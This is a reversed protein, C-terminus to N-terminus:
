DLWRIGNALREQKTMREAEYTTYRRRYGTYGLRDADEQFMLVQKGDLQMSVIPKHPARSREIAAFDENSLTAVHKDLNLFEAVRFEKYPCRRLMYEVAYRTREASWGLQALQEGLVTWFSIREAGVTYTTGMAPFNVALRYLLPMLQEVTAPACGRFVSLASCENASNAADPSSVQPSLTQLTQPLYAAATAITQQQTKM